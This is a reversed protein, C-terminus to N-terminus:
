RHNFRQCSNVAHELTVALVDQGVVTLHIDDKFVPMGKNMALLLADENRFVPVALGKLMADLQAGGADATRRVIENRTSHLVICVPLDHRRGFAVLDAIADPDKPGASPMGDGRLRLSAALARPAQRFVIDLLASSPKDLRLEGRALPSQARLDFYDHSSLVVLMMDADFYGFQKLYARQNRPGWGAASANAV